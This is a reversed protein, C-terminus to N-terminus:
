AAQSGEKQKKIQDLVNVLNRPLASLVGVTNRLPAALTGVVQAILQERPPLNALADLQAATVPQGELVGGMMVVFPVEKGFEKLIKAPAVPDKCFAWATPGEMCDAAAEMGLERLALRALNNKYVKFEIGSERLRRRLDTAKAVNMGVYKSAIAISNNALREKMEVVSDIKKQTPLQM